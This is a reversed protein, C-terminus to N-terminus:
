KIEIRLTARLRHKFILEYMERILESIEVLDGDRAALNIAAEYFAVLRKEAAPAIDIVTGV